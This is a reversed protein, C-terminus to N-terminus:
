KHIWIAPLGAKTYGLKAQLSNSPDNGDIVHCYPIWGNKIHLNLVYAELLFGYGRRRFQPLVELMGISGESHMGIFGALEDGEFLGWMRGAAIRETAYETRDSTGYNAAVIPIHKEDLPRIKSFDGEIPKKGTYVWQSCPTKRTFGLMACVADAAQENKLSFLDANELGTKRIADCLVEPVWINSMVTGDDGIRAIVGYESRYLVKGGERRVLENIDVNNLDM